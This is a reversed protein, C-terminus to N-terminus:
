RRSSLCRLRSVRLRRGQPRMLLNLPNKIRTLCFEIGAFKTHQPDHEDSARFIVSVM